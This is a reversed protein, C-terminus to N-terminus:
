LYTIFSGEAEPASVYILQLFLFSVVVVIERTNDGERLPLTSAIAHEHYFKTRGRKRTDARQGGSLRVHLSRAKEDCQFLQHGPAAM